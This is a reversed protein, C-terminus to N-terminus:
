PVGMAAQALVDARVAEPLALWRRMAAVGSSIEM